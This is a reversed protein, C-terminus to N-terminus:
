KSVIYTRGNLEFHDILSVVHASDKCEQMAEAEGIGSTRALKKYQDSPM